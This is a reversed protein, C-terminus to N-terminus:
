RVFTNKVRKSHLMYPVWIGVGIASRAIGRMTDPDLMPQDPIVFTTLWADAILFTLNSVVVVIYAIPFFRSKTFFLVCLGTYAVIFGFNVALEFTAVPGFFPNYHESEPTTLAEWTGDQFLPLFTVAVFALLAIPSMVLGFGVLILWGGLGTPGNEDGLDPLRPPMEYSPPSQYPNLEPTNSRYDSM